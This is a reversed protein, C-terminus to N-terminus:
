IGDYNVFKMKFIHFLIKVLILVFLENYDLSFERSDYSFKNFNSSMKKVIEILVRWQFFDSFLFKSYFRIIHM